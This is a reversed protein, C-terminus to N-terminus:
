PAPDGVTRWPWPGDSCRRYNRNLRAGMLKLAAIRRAVVRFHNVEALTLARELIDFERYSLWKKLVQFGGIRFEWVGEPVNRWFVSGNLRIDLTREGLVAAAAASAREDAAYDRIRADGAAPMVAGSRDRRGWRAEARLDASAAQGGGDRALTGIERISPELAGSTVGLVPVSPDLLAAVRRGIAVSAALRRSTSPLPVRPWDDLIGDENDELWSPAYAVALVHMWIGDNQPHGADTWSGVGLAHLYEIARPSLNPGSASPALELGGVNGAGALLRTPFPRTNPDLLHDNPLSSTYFVPVGEDDSSQKRSQVRTAVFAAGAAHLRALVPRPENWIPRVETHFAWREDFAHLTLRAFRGAAVGGAVQLESRGRRPDFRSAPVTLGLGERELDEFSVNPDVYRGIRSRLEPEDFSILGGRRKELLGSYEESASIEALSPWARYIALAADPALKFRNLESPNSAVYAPTGTATSAALDARKSSGWFDRHVVTAHKPGDGNRRVLTAIATGVRIGEPNLQTSFVSPDPLGEPTLKGTQRSDGHLADIAILDFSSVLRERMVTFSRYGLYSANTVLSVVGRGTTEAIRREALRFFRVYLDDLNFKRVRWRSRLGAKYPTVLNGEEATTTGEFASYPPNGLVVLVPEVQKVANALDRERELEPFPLHEGSASASWGTLANTLYVAAREGSDLDLPAGADRLFTGIQWHAVVFPAPLVEFGVIRRTAAEKLEAALSAGVNRRELTARIRRLVELLYSGTGTCPDLVLVSPDALGDEIGLEERLARDVRDVMYRVVEGPTYWVGLSRRLVPDYAALFPEYFLQVAEADDFRSFFTPRDVRNLAAAAWGLVGTLDLEGLRGPTALQEFLARVAPVHLTWSSTRWDFATASTRAHASWASFLGYFLTQILTSRFFRDGRETAEFTLGLSRGLAQRLPALSAPASRTSLRALGERAYSALLSAVARPSGLPARRTLARTLFEAFGVGKPADEPRRRAGAWRFFAAADLGFSFEEVVLVVEQAGLELLEFDRYNTVLVLGYTRLYNLVQRSGRKISLPAPVDDAEVVGREPTAAGAVWVAAQGARGSQAEAFLGFDPFGAEGGAMQGLAYVTPSTYRGAANLAGQLAGYYSTEGTGAGTARVRSIESLYDRLLDDSFPM